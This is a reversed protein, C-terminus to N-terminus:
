AAYEIKYGYARRIKGRACLHLSIQFSHLNKANHKLTDYLTRFTEKSAILKDSEDYVNYKNSKTLAEREKKGNYRENYSRTCWELNSVSNNLKNEDKHNVELLGKENDIFTEAVIRHVYKHKSKGEKSLKVSYYGSNTIDKRIIKNYKVSLIDGNENVKYLGEYNKIDKWM